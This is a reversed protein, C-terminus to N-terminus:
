ACKSQSHDQDAAATLCRLCSVLSYISILQDLDAEAEQMIQALQKESGGIVLHLVWQVVDQKSLRYPPVCSLQLLETQCCLCAWYMQVM